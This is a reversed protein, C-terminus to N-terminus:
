QASGEPATVATSALEQVHWILAKLASEHTYPVAASRRCGLAAQPEQFHTHELNDHMKQLNPLVHQLHCLVLLSRIPTVM